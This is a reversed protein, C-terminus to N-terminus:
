DGFFRLRTDLSAHPPLFPAVVMLPTGILGHFSANADSMASLQLSATGHSTGILGHFSAHTDRMM